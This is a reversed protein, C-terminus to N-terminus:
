ENILFSPPLSSGFGEVQPHPPTDLNSIDGGHEHECCECAKPRDQCCPSTRLAALLAGNFAEFHPHDSLCISHTTPDAVPLQGYMCTMSIMVKPQLQAFGGEPLISSGTAFQLFRAQDVSVLSGLAAWFWKIIRPFEPHWNEGITTHHKKLESVELKSWGCMLLELENEDFNLLFDEPVMFTFGARFASLERSVKSSLHYRALSNLYLDANENTVLTQLGNEIIPIMQDLKGHMDYVPVCFTLMGEDLNNRTLTRM